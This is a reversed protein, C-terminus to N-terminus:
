RLKDYDEVNPRTRVGGQINFMHMDRYQPHESFAAAILRMAQEYTATFYTGDKSRFYLGSVDTSPDELVATIFDEPMIILLGEGEIDTTTGTWGSFIVHDGVRTLECTPGLYKVIGQDVREQAQEPIYISGYKEPDFMPVIAVRNGLLKIM